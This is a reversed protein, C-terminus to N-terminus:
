TCPNVAWPLLVEITIQIVGCENSDAMHSYYTPHTSSLGTIKEKLIKSALEVRLSTKTDDLDINCKQLIDQMRMEEITKSQNSRGSHKLTHFEGDAGNPEVEHGSNPEKPHQHVNDDMSISNM